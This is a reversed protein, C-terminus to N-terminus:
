QQFKGLTKKSHFHRFHKDQAAALLEQDGRTDGWARLRYDGLYGYVAELRIRKNDCRCNKGSIEGTLVGNVVGLSTGILKIGLRDAFPQLVLEPSASCLTVLAGSYLEQKVALVGDPRMLQGWNKQCYDKAKQQVWTKQVGTMFTRILQAKLDDRSIQRLFFRIGPVSMKVMRRMFAGTGFSFKLFPVFSDHHTLTGDFDFVSLIKDYICDSESINQKM